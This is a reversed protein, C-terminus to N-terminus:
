SFIMAIGKSLSAGLPGIMFDDGVGIGTLDDGVVAILGVVSIVVIGIGVIPEWSFEYDPSPPM